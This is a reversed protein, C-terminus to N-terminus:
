PLIYQAFRASRPSVADCYCDAIKKRFTSCWTITMHLRAHCMHEPQLRGLIIQLLSRPAPLPRNLRIKAFTCLQPFSQPFTSLPCYPCHGKQGEHVILIRIKLWINQFRASNCLIHKTTVCTSTERSFITVQDWHCLPAATLSAHETLRDGSKKKLTFAVLDDLFVVSPRPTFDVKNCLPTTDNAEHFHLRNCTFDIRVSNCTFHQVIPGLLLYM